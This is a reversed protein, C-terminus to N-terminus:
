CRVGIVQGRVGSWQDRVWIIEVIEDKEVVTASKATFM